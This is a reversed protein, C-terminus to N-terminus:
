IENTIHERSGGLAIIASIFTVINLYKLFLLLSSKPRDASDDCITIHIMEDCMPGKLHVQIIIVVLRNTFFFLILVLIVLM